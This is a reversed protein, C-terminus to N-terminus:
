ASFNIKNQYKDAVNHLLSPFVIGACINPKLEYYKPM